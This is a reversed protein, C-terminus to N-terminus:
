KYCEVVDVTVLGTMVITPLSLIVLGLIMM